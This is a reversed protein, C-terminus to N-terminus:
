SDSYGLSRCHSIFRWEIIEIDKMKGTSDNKFGIVGAAALLM